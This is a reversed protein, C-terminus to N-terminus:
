ARALAWVDVRRAGRGRLTRTLEAATSGTTLVDDVIAVHLGAVPKTVRFARRLNRKREAANLGSQAPTMRTRRCAELVPIGLTGGITDAIERAQNFQRVLRRRWHLPVPVLCDPRAATSSGVWRAFLLALVRGAALRRTFKFRQLLSQVPFEYRLPCQASRWPPPKNLCAGCTTPRPMPVACGPCCVRNWPLARICDSCIDGDLADGDCVVCVPPLVIREFKQLLM